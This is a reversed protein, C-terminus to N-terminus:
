RGLEQQWLIEIVRDIGAKLHRRFTSFPLDLVEAAQEQTAAPQLYTHYLARYLKAERPTHQLSEAAQRILTQLATAREMRGAGPSAHTTVVRSQVLPSTKLLDPNSYDRLAARVAGAFDPESLVVLPESKSAPPAFQAEPAVEREALLALWASPPEVRWDHTYVGYTKGGITYDV